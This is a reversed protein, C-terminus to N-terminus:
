ARLAGKSRGPGTVEPALKEGCFAPGTLEQLIRKSNGEFDGVTPNFQALAIKM